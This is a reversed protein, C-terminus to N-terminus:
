KRFFFGISMTSYRCLSLGFNKQLKIELFAPASPTRILKHPYFRRTYMRHEDIVSTPLSCTVRICPRVVSASLSREWGIICRNVSVPLWRKNEYLFHKLFTLRTHSSLAIIALNMAKAHIKYKEVCKIDLWTHPVYDLWCRRCPNGLM